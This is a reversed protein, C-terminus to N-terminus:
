KNNDSQIVIRKNSVAKCLNFKGIKPNLCALPFHFYIGHIGRKTRELLEVTCCCGAALLGGSGLNSILM